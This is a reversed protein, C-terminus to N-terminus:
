EVPKERLESVYAAVANEADEFDSQMAYEKIEKLVNRTKASCRDIEAVMNLVGRRNYEACQEKILLLKELIEISDEDAGDSDIDQNQKSEIDAILKRLEDLFAPASVAVTDVQNKRSAQELQSASEALQTKGANRLASKIGHVSIAFKRVSEENEHWDSIGCLEDLVVVVRKADRSLSEMLLADVAPQKETQLNPKNLKGADAESYDLIDNVKSVLMNCSVKIKDLAEVTEAPLKKNQM